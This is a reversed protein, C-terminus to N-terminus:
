FRYAILPHRSLVLRAIKIAHMRVLVIRTGILLKIKTIIVANLMSLGISDFMNKPQYIVKRNMVQIGGKTMILFKLTKPSPFHQLKHWFPGKLDAFHLLTIKSSLTLTNL